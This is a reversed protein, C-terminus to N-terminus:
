DSSAIIPGDNKRQNKARNRALQTRIDCPIASLRVAGDKLTDIIGVPTDLVDIPPREPRIPRKGIKRYTNRDLAAPMKALHWDV